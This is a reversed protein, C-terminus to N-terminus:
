SLHVTSKNFMNIMGGRLKLKYVAFFCSTANRKKSIKIQVVRQLKCFHIKRPTLFNFVGHLSM